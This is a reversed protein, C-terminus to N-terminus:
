SCINRWVLTPFYFQSGNALYAMEFHVESSAYWAASTPLCVDALHFFNYPSFIGIVNSSSLGLVVFVSIDISM